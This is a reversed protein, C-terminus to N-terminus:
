AVQIPIKEAPPNVVFGCRCLPVFVCSKEHQFEKLTRRNNTFHLKTDSDKMHTVSTTITNNVDAYNSPINGLYNKLWKLPLIKV